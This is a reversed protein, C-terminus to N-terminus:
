RGLLHNGHSSDITWGWTPTIEIIFKSDLVGFLQRAVALRQEIPRGLEELRVNGDLVCNQSAAAQGNGHLQQTIALTSQHASSRREARDRRKPRRDARRLNVKALLLLQDGLCSGLNRHRTQIELCESDTTRQLLRQPPIRSQRAVEDRRQLAQTLRGLPLCLERLHECGRVEHSRLLWLVQAPRLKKEAWGM